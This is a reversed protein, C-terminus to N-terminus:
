QNIKELEKKIKGAESEPDEAAIVAQCVAVASAGAEIALRANEPVIGGIAVMPMDTLKRVSAIFDLGVTEVDPKTPSGFIAGLALYDAKQEIVRQAEVVNHTSGGLIMNPGGLGRAQHIPLDGQGLHVGDAGALLAIDIRDNMIFLGGADHCLQSIESARDLLEVDSLGKERMQIADAGGALVRKVTERWSLRCLAETVLVYLRIRQFKGVRNIRTVLCQELTYGTYRIREVGGALSSEEVKFAEEICRLAESLRKGAAIVVDCLSKRCMEAQTSIGTGIDGETDRAGLLELIGVKSLATSLDHRMQKLRGSLEGDNLVFRASDEMVRLAERARNFNADLLRLITRDM